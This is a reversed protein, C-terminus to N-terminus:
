QWVATILIALDAVSLRVGFKGAIATMVVLRLGDPFAMHLCADGGLLQGIAKITM